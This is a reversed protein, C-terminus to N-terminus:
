NMQDSISLQLNKHPNVYMYCVLGAFYMRESVDVQYVSPTRRSNLLKSVLVFM